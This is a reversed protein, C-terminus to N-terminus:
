IFRASPTCWKQEGSKLMKSRWFILFLFFFVPTKSIGSRERGVDLMSLVSGTRKCMGLPIHLTLESIVRMGAAEQEGANFGEWRHALLRINADIPSM